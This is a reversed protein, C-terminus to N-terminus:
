KTHSAVVGPLAASLGAICIFVKADERKALEKVQEPNRHASAVHLEYDVGYEKLIQETKDSVPTDSKSGMIVLVRAM